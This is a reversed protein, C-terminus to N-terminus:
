QLAHMCQVVCDLLRLNRVDPGSLLTTTGIRPLGYHKVNPFSPPFPPTSNHSGAISMSSSRLRRTRSSHQKLRALPIIMTMMGRRCDATSAFFIRSIRSRLDSVSSRLNLCATIPFFQFVGCYVSVHSTVPSPSVRKSNRLKLVLRVVNSYLDLSISELGSANRRM